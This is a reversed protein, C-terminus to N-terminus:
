KSKRVMYWLIIQETAIHWIWMLEVYKMLVMMILFSKLYHWKEM